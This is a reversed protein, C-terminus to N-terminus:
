CGAAVRMQAAVVEILRKRLHQQAVRAFFLRVGGGPAAGAEGGLGGLAPQAFV